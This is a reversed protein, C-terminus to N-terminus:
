GDKIVAFDELTRILKGTHTDLISTSFAGGSYSHETIFLTWAVMRGHPREAVGQDPEPLRDARHVPTRKATRRAGRTTVRYISWRPTALGGGGRRRGGPRLSTRHGGAARRPPGAGGSVPAREHTGADEAGLGPKGAGRVHRHTPSPPLVPRVGN